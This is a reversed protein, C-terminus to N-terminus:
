QRNSESSKVLKKKGKRRGRETKTKPDVERNRKDEKTEVL